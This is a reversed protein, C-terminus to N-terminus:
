GRGKEFANHMNLAMNRSMDVEKGTVPSVYMMRHAKSHAGVVGTLSKLIYRYLMDVAKGSLETAAPDKLEEMLQTKPDVGCERIAEAVDAFPAPIFNNCKHERDYETIGSSVTMEWETREMEEPKVHTIFDKYDFAIDMGCQAANYKLKKFRALWQMKDKKTNIAVNKFVPCFGTEHDTTRIRAGGVYFIIGNQRTSKNKANPYCLQYPNTASGPEGEPVKPFHLDSLRDALMGEFKKYATNGLAFYKDRAFDSIQEMIVIANYKIVMKAIEAVAKAFYGNRLDEIKGTYEWDEAKKARNAMELEKLRSHYDTSSVKGDPATDTILNLSREELIKGDPSMVLAYVLDQTNRVLVIRNSDAAVAKAMDNLSLKKDKCETNKEYSVTLQFKESYYRRDKTIDYQAVRMEILDDRIYQKAADSLANPNRREEPMNYYTFLEMYVDGPINRGNKDRKNVLMSGKKHVFPKGDAATRYMMQPSGNLKVTMNDRNKKSLIYMFMSAYENLISPDGDKYYRTLYRNTIEFMLAKGEEVSRLIQAKNGPKWEQVAAFAEVDSYFESLDNYESPEKLTFPRNGWVTYTEVFQKFIPLIADLADRLVKAAAKEGEEDGKKVKQKNCAGSAYLEYEKRTITLPRTLKDTLVVADVEPHEAFFNRARTMTLKPINQYPAQMKTYTMVECDEDVGYIDLPKTGEALIYFYFKNGIRLITNENASLKDKGVNWKESQRSAKGYYAHNTEVIKNLKRTLYNRVMNGISSTTRMISPMADDYVDYFANDIDASSKRHVLKILDRVSKWDDNVYTKVREVMKVFGRIQAGPKMDKALDEGDDRLNSVAEMLLAKYHAFVEDEMVADIEAMTYLRKADTVKDVAKVLTKELASRSMKGAQAKIEETEVETIRAVIKQYDGNYVLGSLIRLRDGYIAVEEPSAARIAKYVDRLEKQEIGHLAAFTEVVQDDEDIIAFSFAKEVPQMIQKDLKEIKPLPRRGDQKGRISRNYEIVINNVGKIEMGHESHDGAIAKNYADIGSQTLFSVYGANTLMDETILKSVALSVDENALITRYYEANKQFKAFNSLVRDPMWTTLATIRSQLLRVAMSTKGKVMRIDEMAKDLAAQNGTYKRKAYVPLVEQLFNASNLKRVDSILPAAGDKLVSLDQLTKGVATDLEALIASEIGKRLVKDPDQGPDAYLDGLADLANCVVTTNMKSLSHEIVDKAFDDIYVRVADVQSRFEADIELYGKETITERTKGYPILELQLSKTIPSHKVFNAVNLESM